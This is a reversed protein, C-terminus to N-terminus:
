EHPVKDIQAAVFVLPQASCLKSLTFPAYRIASRRFNKSKNALSRCALRGAKPFSQGFTVQLSLSPSSLIVSCLPLFKSKLVAKIISKTMAPPNPVTISGFGIYVIPKGEDKAKAMWTILSEPPTWGLEPNDLFWSFSTDNTFTASLFFLM